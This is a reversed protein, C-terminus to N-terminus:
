HGGFVGRPRTTQSKARSKKRRAEKAKMRRAERQKANWEDKCPNCRVDFQTTEVGDCMHLPAGREDFSCPFDSNPTKASEATRAAACAMAKYSHKIHCVTCRFIIPNCM